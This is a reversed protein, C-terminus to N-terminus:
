SAGTRGYAGHELERRLEEVIMSRTESAGANHGALWAVAVLLRVAAPFELAWDYEATLADAYEEARKRWDTAGTM